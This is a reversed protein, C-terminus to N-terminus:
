QTGSVAASTGVSNTLTVSVSQIASAPGSITFPISLSFAGGYQYNGATAFWTPLLSSVDATFTSTGSIAAGPAAAFTFTATKLDLTTSTAVVEVNFGTSTVDLIQVSGAEIIPALPEVTVTSTRTQGAVALTVTVNGAVTGPDLPIPFSVTTSGAPITISATAPKSGFGTGFGADGNNNAPFGSATTSLAVSLTGTYAASSAPSLTVTANTINSGPTQSTPLGTLTFTPTSTQAGPVNTLAFSAPGSAGAVTATVSYSGATANATLAPSTAVGSANTQVTATTGAGAFIASAGSAPATFIVNAGSVLNGNADKVTAVLPKAFAGGVTISQGGGSTATINGPPGATNTLAFSASSTVGTVKATVNYSGATANATFVPSTAVGSTNTTVTVTAGGEAFTGSAGSTPASFTVSAGSVVNNNADKVTAVLALSFASKTKASQNGGSTATITGPTGATNTLAFSAPSAAGTVTATVSYSGATTNAAFAPSTAVGSASTQVTTSTGGGAFTGSAGSAPASFTVSAGSILNGSADKVTAVLPSAFTSGVTASQRGGSTATISGPPGTTNTLAFSAPNGIGAVTASVSYSGATANATFTTTTAVGSSNTQVVGATVGGAFTGSAGSTPASFTVNVGSIVNGSADKVTVVLPSGFAHNIQASQNGGSTATISAPPGATNTLGFSAAIAVGNASASVTYPGGATANATFAPSTALGSGNSQVTATIGSGAFTGSAGAPPASFTVNAGSVLNGFADKVTAVLANSFASNVRASQGGGSTAAISAAAGATNTLAFSAPSGVGAVTANVNYPGGATVNATFAPSTAVGSGNTQVTVSIGAGAFTGSAGSGPASFTVNANSVLNGSVDKVIAVLANSFVNTVQASQGGGAVATISAPPGPTNTLAFSAAAAVGTVTAGVPYPGGAVANATFAPSTAVGSGNTQVTVSAGAGAFTGSAGAGPASFTVNAGSVLNGFADKVTAVLPSGFVNNVQASQGGGSTATISAPSGATTTISFTQMVAQAPPGPDSLSITFSTTGTLGTLPGSILGAASLTLNAPLASGSVLAWTYNGTGGQAQLQTSYNTGITGNPLTSATVFSLVPIVTITFSQAASTQPPVENDSIIVSFTTTIATTSLTGGIVGAASLTLGSPLSSGPALSWTYTGAGGTQTLQTAPYVTGAVASPLAMPTITLVSSVTLHFQQVATQAFNPYSPTNPPVSNSDTVSGAFTVTGAPGQVTGVLSNTPDITLWAPAASNLHWAYPQTGGAAQLPTSPYADGIVGNPLVQANQITLRPIIVADGLVAATSDTFWLDNNNPGVTISFPQSFAGNPLAQATYVVSGANVALRGLSSASTGQQTFWLAFDPGLTMDNLYTTVSDTLNVISYQSINYNANTSTLSNTPISDILSGYQQSFWVSQGDPGPAMADFTGPAAAGEPLSFTTRLIQDGQVQASASPFPIRELYGNWGGETPSYETCWLYNDPGWTVGYTAANTTIPIWGIQSANTPNTSIINARWLVSNNNDTIYIGNDQINNGLNDTGSDPVVVGGDAANGPSNPSSIMANPNPVVGNTLTSYPIPAGALTVCPASNACGTVGNPNPQVTSIRGLEWTTSSDPNVVLEVFWISFYDDPPGATILVPNGAIAIVNLLQGQTNMEGIYGGASNSYTFWVNGDPGHTIRNSSGPTYPVASSLVPYATAVFQVPPQTQGSASTAAGSVTSLLLVQCVLGALRRRPKRAQSSPHNM